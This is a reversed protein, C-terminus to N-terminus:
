SQQFPDCDLIADEMSEYTGLVLVDHGMPTVGPPFSQIEYCIDNM